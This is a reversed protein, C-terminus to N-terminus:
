AWVLNGSSDTEFIFSAYGNLGLYGRAVWLIHDNYKRYMTMSVLQSSICNTPSTYAFSSPLNWTALNGSADIKVIASTATFPTITSGKYTVTGNPHSSYYITSGDSLTICDMWSNSVYFGSTTNNFAAGSGNDNGVTSSLSYTGSLVLRLATNNQDFAGSAYTMNGPHSIDIQSSSYCSKSNIFHALGGGGNLQASGSFIFSKIGTIGNCSYVSQYNTGDAGWQVEGCVTETSPDQKSAFAKAYISHIGGTQGPARQDLNSCFDASTDVTNTSMTVAYWNLQYPSAVGYVSSYLQGANYYIVKQHNIETLQSETFNINAINGSNSTFGSHLTGDSNLEIIKYYTQSGLVVSTSRLALAIRDNTKDYSVDVYDTTTLPSPPNFTTGNQCVGSSNIKYLTCNTTTKYSPLGSVNDHQGVLYTNGSLDTAAAIYNGSLTKTANIVPPIGLFEHFPM